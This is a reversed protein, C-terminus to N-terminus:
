RGWRIVAAAYSFGIGASALVVRAGDSIRGERLALDLSVLSDNTGHYGVEELSVSQEPSLNLERLVQERDRPQLHRLAVYDLSKGAEAASRIVEILRKVFRFSLYTFVTQSNPTHYYMIKTGLNEPSFPHM